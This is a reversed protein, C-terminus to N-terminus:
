SELSDPAGVGRSFNRTCASPIRFAVAESGQHTKVHSARHLFTEPQQARKQAHGPRLYLPHFRAHLHRQLGLVPSLEEFREYVRACSSWRALYIIIVVM